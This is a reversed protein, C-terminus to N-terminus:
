GHKIQLAVGITKESWKHGKTTKMTLSKVQDENLFAASKLPCVEKELSSVKKRLSQLQWRTKDHVRQLNRYKRTLDSIKKRLEDNELGITM